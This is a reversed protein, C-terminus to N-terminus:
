VNTSEQKDMPDIKQPVTLNVITYAQRMMEENIDNMPVFKAFKVLDANNFFDLSIGAVKTTGDSQRLSDILENTTSEMAKINFRDEFYRRIIETIESHYEKIRGSQWLKKEELAKLNDLAIEHPEKKVVTIIGAKLAKKKRYYRVAYYIAVIIILGLLIWLLVIKWDLSIKIPDKVDKIEDGQNINLSSVTLNIENSLATKKATDEKTNYYVPIAPIHVDGSDYKALVFNYTIVTQNDKQESKPSESKLLEVGKLSDKLLPSFVTVGKQTTVTISYNIYDGIQYHASDVKAKVSINQAHCILSFMIWFVLLVSAKNKVM